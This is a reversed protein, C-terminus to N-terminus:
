VFSSSWSPDVQSNPAEKKEFKFVNLISRWHAFCVSSTFEFVVVILTRNRQPRQWRTTLEHFRNTRYCSTEHCKCRFWLLEHYNTMPKTSRPSSLLRCLVAHWDELNWRSFLAWFASWHQSAVHYIVKELKNRLKGCFSDGASVLCVPSAVVLSVPYRAFNSHFIVHSFYKLPVKGDARRFVISWQLEAIM